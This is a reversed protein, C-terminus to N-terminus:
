VWWGLVWWGVEEDFRDALQSSRLLLLNDVAPPRQRDWRTLM